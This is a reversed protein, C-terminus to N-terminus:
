IYIYICITGRTEQRHKNGAPCHKADAQWAGSNNFPSVCLYPMTHCPACKYSIERERERMIKREKEMERKRQMLM